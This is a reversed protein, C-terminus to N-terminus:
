DPKGLDDLIPCTPRDDGHCHRALHEITNVMSQMEAIRQKSSTPTNEPL